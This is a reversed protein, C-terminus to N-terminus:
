KQEGKSSALGLLRDYEEPSLIVATPINNRLVVIQKEEKLREFIKSSQGKNFQTISVLNNLINEKAMIVGGLSHIYYIM